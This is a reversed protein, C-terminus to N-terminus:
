RVPVASGPLVTVANSVVGVGYREATASSSPEQVIVSSRSKKSVAPTRVPRRPDTVNLRKAASSAPLWASEVVTVYLVLSRQRSRVGPLPALHRRGSAPPPSRRRGGSTGAIDAPVKRVRKFRYTAPTADTNGAADTARM